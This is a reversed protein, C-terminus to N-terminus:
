RPKAAVGRYLYRWPKLVNPGKLWDNQLVSIEFGAERVMRDIPRDLNCGGAVHRQVGNLRHQRRAIRSDAALGHELFHVRGGPRLVRYLEGLARHVDPITCLTFTSLAADVSDDGLPLDQGDLGVYAVPISSANVRPAGVKRGVLSPEVAYVGTIGPPYLPVNLGSGFGIEVVSGRLGAVTAARHRRVDKTGLLVNLSRPLLHDEWLGM